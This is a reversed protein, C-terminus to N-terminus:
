CENFAEWIAPLPGFGTPILEDKQDVKHPTNVIGM